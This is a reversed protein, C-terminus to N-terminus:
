AADAWEHEYCFQRTQEPSLSLDLLACWAGKEPGGDPRHHRCTRCMGFTRGGRAAVAQRLLDSLEEALGDARADPLGAIAADLNGNWEARQRGANTLGYSISRRDTESRHEEVLGKRALSKLTQSVTGRTALLYEAVQSPARSFRNARALYILAARQVPSLDDTRGDSAIVRSLRDILDRLLFRGPESAPRHIMHSHYRSSVLNM